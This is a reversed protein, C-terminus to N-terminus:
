HTTIIFHRLLRLLRTAVLFLLAGGALILLAVRLWAAVTFSMGIGTSVAAYAVICGPCKPVLVWLAGPALWACAEKTVRWAGPRGRAVSARCCASM